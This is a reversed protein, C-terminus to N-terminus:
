FEIQGIYTTRDSKANHQSNIFVLYSNAPTDRFDISSYTVNAPLYGFGTFSYENNCASTPSTQCINTREPVIVFHGNTAQLSGTSDQKRSKLNPTASTILEVNANTEIIGNAHVKLSLLGVFILFLSISLFRFLGLRIKM